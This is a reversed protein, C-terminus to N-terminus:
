NKWLKDFIGPPGYKDCLQKFDSETIEKRHVRLLELIDPIDRSERIEQNYKVSHLKLALLHNLSPLVFPYEKIRTIKGQEIIETLTKEDIFMFDIDMLQKNKDRLNIFTEQLIFETYGAKKLPEHIKRFDNQTILFDVDATHRSVSYENVAFGGILVIKADHKKVIESLLQFVYGYSMNLFM